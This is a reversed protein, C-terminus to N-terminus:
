ENSENMMWILPETLRDKIDHLLFDSCHIVENMLNHKLYQTERLGLVKCYNSYSDIISNFATKSLSINDDDFDIGIKNRTLMVWTFNYKTNLEHFKDIYRQSNAGGRIGEYVMNSILFRDIVYTGTALEDLLTEFIAFDNASEIKFLGDCTRKPFKLETIGENVLLKILTSKGANDPGEVVIFRKM